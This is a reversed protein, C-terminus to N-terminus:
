YSAMRERQLCFLSTHKGDVLSERRLLLHHQALDDPHILLTALPSSLHDGRDAGKHPLVQADATYTQM